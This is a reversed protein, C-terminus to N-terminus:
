RYTISVRNKDGAVFNAEEITYIRRRDYDGKLLANINQYTKSGVKLLYGGNDAAVLADCDSGSCVGRSILAQKKCNSLTDACVYQGKDEDSAKQGNKMNDGSLYYTENGEDDKIIYVGGKYDYSTVQADESRYAIAAACESMLSEPCYLNTLNHSIYTPWVDIGKFTDEPLFKLNVPVVFDTLATDVFVRDAMTMLNELNGNVQELTKTVFAAAGIEKLSDPLDISTIGTRHFALNGIKELGNPLSIETISPMYTFAKGVSTIGEKIDLKTISTDSQWPADTHCGGDCSLYYDKIEAPKSADIPSITLTYTPNNDDDVGNQIYTYTCNDGCSPVDALANFSLVLGFIFVSNRM